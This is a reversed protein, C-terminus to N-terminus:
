PGGEVAHALGLLKASIALGVKAAAQVNVDFRVHNHEIVFSIIGRPTEGTDTVTLISPYNDGSTQKAFYLIRCGTAAQGPSLHRIEVPADNVKQGAAARDLEKSVDNEGVVCIPFSSSPAQQKWEVFPGFKLLYAAKIDAVSATPAAIAPAAALLLVACAFLPAWRRTM